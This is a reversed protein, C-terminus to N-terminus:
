STSGYRREARADIAEQTWRPDPEPQDPHSPLAEPTRAKRQGRKQLLQLELRRVRNRLERKSMQDPHTTM